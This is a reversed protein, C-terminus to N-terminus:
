VHARGIEALRYRFPATRNAGITRESRIYGLDVLRVLMRKLPTVNPPLAAYAAIAQANTQGANIARFIATCEEIKRLGRKQDILTEIQMRIKGNLSLVESGVNERLSRDARFARVCRSIGGVIGQAVARERHTFVSVLAADDFYDFPEVRITRAFRGYLPADCANFQEMKRLASGCLVLVFPRDDRHVDQIANLHSPVGERTGKLYQFEDLSIVLPQPTRLDYLLRFVTRRTPYGATDLQPNFRRTVSHVAGLKCSVRNTSQWASPNLPKSASM